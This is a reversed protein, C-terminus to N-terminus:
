GKLRTKALLVLQQTIRSRVSSSRECSFLKDKGASICLTLATQRDRGIRHQRARPSCAGGVYNGVERLDEPSREVAAGAEVALLEGLTAQTGEIKSSLVAECRIFPRMLVHPNPLRAGEGALRGILQDADSLQTGWTGPIEQRPQHRQRAEHPKGHLFGCVRDHRIGRLLFDPNAEAYTPPFRHLTAEEFAKANRAFAVKLSFQQPISYFCEFVDNEAWTRQPSCPAGM